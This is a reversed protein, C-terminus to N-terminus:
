ADAPRGGADLTPTPLDATAGPDHPLRRLIRGAEGEDVWYRQREFPYTPLPLRRRAEGEPHLATWDVAVGSLWRRGLATINAIEAIDASGDGEAAPRSLAAVAEELTRCLVFRRHEFTHRGVQLTWAVDPLSLHPHRRLHDALRAAAQELATATRASLPLLQWASGAATVAPSTPAPIPPAEELVLHANTGGAGFSSVGARRPTGDSEWPLLRTNVFFPSGDIESETAAQAFHLSPPLERHELALVTKILGAIGAAGNAHGINSKVSGLACYGVRDTFARFAQTMATLEIADGLRSGNGHGEVYTITEPLVGSSELARRILESRGAQSPALFGPRASGDNNVVSARIVARISDGDAVADALRKLVVIGVGDSDISGLGEGDFARCRGDPSLNGGEQYVYGWRQRASISVGGALAMQCDGSLLSRCALDVAVLSTSCATQLSLSPGMLGLKYSVRTTLFDRETGVGGLRSGEPTDMAGSLSLLFAYDTKSAGGFVGVRGPHGQPDYGADELAEWACELFLRQQPDMMEAERRGIGFFGADWLDAGALMGAAPVLFSRGAPPEWAKGPDTFFTISEVGARLNQWFTELDDAGPFRGSMGLIAIETGQFAGTAAVPEAATASAPRIPPAAPPSVMLGLEQRIRLSLDTLTPHNYLDLMSLEVGLSEQVRARVIALLMSHGGLDFFNDDPGIEEIALLERWIGTLLEEVPPGAPLTASVAPPTPAVAAVAPKAAEASAATAPLAARDIKGGSTKPLAPLAVYTAPIMYPPLRRALFSKLEAAAPVAGGAGVLYAVLAKQEPASEGAEGSERLAVAAERIEPHDALAVEIEGIEIRFGRLKVQQDRRGLIEVEGSERRRALDGTRYLRAGDGWPDPVFALATLDPRGLYGRALAPGGLCIEGPVGPPLPEGEEDLLHLSRGPLPGGVAFHVRDRG